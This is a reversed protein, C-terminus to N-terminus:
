EIATFARRTRTSPALRAASHGTSKALYQARDAAQFLESVSAGPSGTTSAVGCSLGAGYPLQAAAACARLAADMAREVSQGPVLAMEALSQIRDYDSAPAHRDRSRAVAGVARLGRSM